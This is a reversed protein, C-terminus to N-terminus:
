RDRRALRAVHRRGERAGTALGVQGHHHRGDRAPLGLGDAVVDAPHLEAGVAPQAGDVGLEAHEADSRAGAGVGVGIRDGREAVVRDEGVHGGGVLAVDPPLTQGLVGRRVQDVPAALVPRGLGRVGGRMGVAAEGGREGLHGRDGGFPLVGLADRDRGDEEAPAAGRDDRQDGLREVPGVPDKKPEIMAESVVAAAAPATPVKRRSGKAM